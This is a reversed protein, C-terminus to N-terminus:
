KLVESPVLGRDFERHQQYIDNCFAIQGQKQLCWNAVEQLKDVMLKHLRKKRKRPSEASNKVDDVGKQYEPSVISPCPSSESAIPYKCKFDADQEKYFIRQFTLRQEARQTELFNCLRRCENVTLETDRLFIDTM